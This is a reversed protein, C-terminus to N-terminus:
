MGDEPNTCSALKDMEKTEELLNKLFTGYYQDFIYKLDFPIQKHAFACFNALDKKDFIIKCDCYDISLKNGKALLNCCEDMRKTNEAEDSSNSSFPIETASNFLKVKM